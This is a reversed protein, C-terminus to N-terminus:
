KLGPPLKSTAIGSLVAVAIDLLTKGLIPVTAVTIRQAISPENELERMYDEGLSTLWIGIPRFSIRNMTSTDIVAVDLLKHGALYSADKNLKAEDWRLANQVDVFRLQFKENHGTAHEHLYALLKLEDENINAKIM